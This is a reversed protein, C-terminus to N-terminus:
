AAGKAATLSPCLDCAMFAGGTVMEAKLAIVPSMGCAGRLWQSVAPQSVGLAKATKTQDGFHQVLRQIPTTM